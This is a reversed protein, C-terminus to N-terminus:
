FEKLDLSIFIKKKQNLIIDKIQSFCVELNKNILVYDYDHWHKVDEEFSNFRKKVEEESNQNRKILRKISEYEELKLGHKEVIENTIKM